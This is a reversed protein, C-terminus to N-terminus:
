GRARAGRKLVVENCVKRYGRALNRAVQQARQTACVQRVRVRYQKKTLCPRKSRADKLDMSRLKARLWAWLKEVPNLDPSKAPVHWLKVKARRHAVHSADLFRENDCLVRWPGHPKVPDLSRIAKTLKGEDM